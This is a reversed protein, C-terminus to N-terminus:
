GGDPGANRPIAPRRNALRAARDEFEACTYDRDPESIAVSDPLVGAVAEWITGFSVDALM